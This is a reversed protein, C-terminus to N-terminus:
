GVYMIRGELTEGRGLVSLIHGFSPSEGFVATWLETMVSLVDKSTNLRELRRSVGCQHRELGSFQVDPVIISWFQRGHRFYVQFAILLSSTQSTNVM